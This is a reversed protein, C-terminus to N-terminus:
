PLLAIVPPPMGGAYTVLKQQCLKALLRPSRVIAELTIPPFFATEINGHDLVAEVTQLSLPDDGGLLVATGAYMLKYFLFVGGAHSTRFATYARSCSSINKMYNVRGDQDPGYQHLQSSAAYGLSYSVLKPNGTTSSTGSTHLLIFPDNLEEETKRHCPYPEVPTTDLLEELDPLVIFQMQRCRLVPDDKTSKTCAFYSCNSKELLHQRM